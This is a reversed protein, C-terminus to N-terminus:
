STKPNEAERRAEHQQDFYLDKVRRGDQEKGENGRWSRKEWAEGLM